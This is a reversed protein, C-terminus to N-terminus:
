GKAVAERFVRQLRDFDRALQRAVVLQFKCALEANSRLLHEFASRNLSATTVDTLATCTASRPGRDVLAVLGFLDGPGLERDVAKSADDARTVHIRGALVVWAADQVSRRAEGERVFV